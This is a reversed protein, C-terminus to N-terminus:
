DKQIPTYTFVIMITGVWMFLEFDKKRLKIKKTKFNILNQNM